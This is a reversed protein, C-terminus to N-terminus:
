VDSWIVWISIHLTGGGIYNRAKAVSPETKSELRLQSDPLNGSTLRAWSTDGLTASRALSTKFKLQIPTSFFNCSAFQAFFVTCIIDYIAFQMFLLVCVFFSLAIQM